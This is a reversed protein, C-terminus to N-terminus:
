FQIENLFFKKQLDLSIFFSFMSIRKSQLYRWLKRGSERGKDTSERTEELLSLMEAKFKGYPIDIIKSVTSKSTRKSNPVSITNETKKRLAKKYRLKITEFDKVIM